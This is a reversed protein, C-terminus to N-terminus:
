LRLQRFFSLQLRFSSCTEVLFHLLAATQASQGYPDHLRERSCTAQQLVTPHMRQTIRKSLGRTWHPHLRCTSRRNSCHRNWNQHSWCRLPLCLRSASRCSSRHRRSSYGPPNPRHPQLLRNRRHLLHRRRCPLTRPQHDRRRRLLFRGLRCGTDSWRRPM